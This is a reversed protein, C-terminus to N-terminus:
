EYIDRFREALRNAGRDSLRTVSRQALQAAASNDEM